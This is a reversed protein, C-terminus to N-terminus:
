EKIALAADAANGKPTFGYQIRKMVNNSYINHMIKNILLKELVKEAANILSM